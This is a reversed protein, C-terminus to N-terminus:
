SLPDTPRKVVARTTNLATNKTECFVAKQKAHVRNQGQLFTLFHNFKNSIDAIITSPRHTDDKELRFRFSDM